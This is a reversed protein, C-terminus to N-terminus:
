EDRFAPKRKEMFATMGEKQDQTAFLAHFARREYALGQALPMEFARNVAEKLMAVAPGPQAAIKAAVKLTEELLMEAPVVRAAVGCAEAEAADMMRGTLCLDMAKAKGMARPGRQSGGLGPMIGLTIEPQGFRATDAAILIDLAMALECGGGLAFGAVAAIIPKRIRLIRDMQRGFPNEAQMQPFSKPAMEKIDAGAAFAKDSGTVIMVRIVPDADWKELADALEDLLANNLANLAEPRNLTAIAVPGQTRTLIATM